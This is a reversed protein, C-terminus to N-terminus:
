IIMANNQEQMIASTKNFIFTGVFDCIEAGDLCGM